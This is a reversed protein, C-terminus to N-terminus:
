FPLDFDDSNIETAVQEYTDTSTNNSVPKKSDAFYVGSAIVDTTYRKVGEKDDYSGTQIHGELAIQSGKAMYKGMFEATKGFVKCSIFDCDPQGDKKFKRNVALNFSGFAVGGQSYRLELDKTMRGLLMVKNM